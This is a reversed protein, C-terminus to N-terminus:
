TDTAAPGHAQLITQAEALADGPQEFEGAKVRQILANIEAPLEDATGYGMAWGRAQIDADPMTTFSKASLRWTGDVNVMHLPWQRDRDDSADVMAERDNKSVIRTFQLPWLPLDGMTYPFQQYRESLAKHLEFKPVSFHRFYYLAQKEQETQAVFLDAWTQSDHPYRANVEKAHALLAEPTKFELDGRTTASTGAPNTTNGNNPRCGLPLILAALLITLTIRNMM